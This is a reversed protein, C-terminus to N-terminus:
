VCKPSWTPQYCGTDHGCFNAKNKLLIEPVDSEMNRAYHVPRKAIPPQAVNLYYSPTINSNMIFRNTAEEPSEVVLAKTPAPLDMLSIQPGSPLRSSQIVMKRTLPPIPPKSPQPPIPADIDTYGQVRRSPHLNRNGVCRRIHYGQQAPVTMYSDNQNPHVTMVYSGGSQNKAPAQKQDAKPTRIPPVQWNRHTHQGALRKRRENLQQEQLSLKRQFPTMQDHSYPNHNPCLHYKGLLPQKTNCHCKDGKGCKTRAKSQKDFWPHLPMEQVGGEGIMPCMYEKSVNTGLCYEKGATYGNMRSEFYNCKRDLVAETSNDM